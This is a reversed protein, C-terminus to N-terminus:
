ELMTSPPKVCGAPTTEHCSQCRNWRLTVCNGRKNFTMCDTYKRMLLVGRGHGRLLHEPLRPDPIEDVYFGPGEDEIEISVYDRRVAYSIHLRKDAHFRNGHKVANTFAEESALRVRFIDHEPFGATQMLNVIQEGLRKIEAFESRCIMSNVHDGNLQSNM